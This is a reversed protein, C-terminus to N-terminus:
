PPIDTKSSPLAALIESFQQVDPLVNFFADDVSQVSMLAKRLLSSGMKTVVLTKARNDFRNNARLLLGKKELTRCVKSTMMVDAQSYHAVSNQTVVKDQQSLQMVGALLMVQVYTLDLPKLAEAMAKQWRNTTQWLAFGPTQQFQQLTTMDIM